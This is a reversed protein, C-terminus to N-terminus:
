KRAGGDLIGGAAAPEDSAPHVSDFGEASALAELWGCCVGLELSATLALIASGRLRAAQENRTEGAAGSEIRDAASRLLDAAKSAQNLRPALEAALATVSSSTM